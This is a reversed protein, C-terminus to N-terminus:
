RRRTPVLRLLWRSFRGVLLLVLVWALVIVAMAYTGASDSADDGLAGADLWLGFCVVGAIVVAGVLAWFFLSWYARREEVSAM